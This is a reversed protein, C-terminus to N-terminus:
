AAERTNVYRGKTLGIVQVYFVSETPVVIFIGDSAADFNGEM